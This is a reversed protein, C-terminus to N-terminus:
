FQSSWNNGAMRDCDTGPCVNIIPGVIIVANKIKQRLVNIRGTEIFSHAPWMDGCKRAM